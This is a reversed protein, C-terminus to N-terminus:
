CQMGKMPDAATEPWDPSFKCPPVASSGWSEWSWCPDWLSPVYYCYVVRKYSPFVGKLNSTKYFPPRKKWFCHCRTWQLVGCLRHVLTASNRSYYFCIIYSGRYTSIFGLCNYLGKRPALCHPPPSPPYWAQAVTIPCGGTGSIACVNVIMARWTWDNCELGNRVSSFFFNFDLFVWFHEESEPSLSTVTLICCHLSGVYFSGRSFLCRFSIWRWNQSRRKLFTIEKGGNKNFNQLIIPFTSTLFVSSVLARGFVTFFLYNSHTSFFFLFFWSDELSKPLWSGTAYPVTAM